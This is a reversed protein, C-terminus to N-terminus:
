CGSDGEASGAVTLGASEIYDSCRAVESMLRPVTKATGTNADSVICLKQTNPSFFIDHLAAVASLAYVRHFVTLWRVLM